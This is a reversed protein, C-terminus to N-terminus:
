VPIQNIRRRWKKRIIDGATKPDLPPQKVTTYLELAKQKAVKEADLGDYNLNKDQEVKQPALENFLNDVEPEVNVEEQPPGTPQSAPIAESLKMIEEKIIRELLHDMFGSEQLLHVGYINDLEFKPLGTVKDVFVEPFARKLQEFRAIEALAQQAEPSNRHKFAQQMRKYSFHDSVSMGRHPRRGFSGLWNKLKQYTGMAELPPPTRLAM